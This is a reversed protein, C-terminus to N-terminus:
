MKSVNDRGGSVSWSSALARGDGKCVRKEACENCWKMDRTDLCVDEAIDHVRLLLAKALLNTVPKPM